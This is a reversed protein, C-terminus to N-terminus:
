VEAATAVTTMDKDEAKWGEIKMEYAKDSCTRSVEDHLEDAKM